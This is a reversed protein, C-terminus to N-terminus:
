KMRRLFYRKHVPIIFQEFTATQNVILNNLVPYILSFRGSFFCHFESTNPRYFILIGIFNIHITNHLSFIRFMKIRQEAQIGGQHDIHVYDIGYILLIRLIKFGNIRFILLIHIIFVSM